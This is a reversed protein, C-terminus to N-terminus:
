RKPSRGEKCRRRVVQRGKEVPMEGPGSGAEELWSGQEAEGEEEAFKGEQYGERLELWMGAKTVAKGDEEAQEDKRGGGV